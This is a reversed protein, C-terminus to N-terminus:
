SRRAGTMPMRIRSTPFHKVVSARFVRLLERFYARAATGGAGKETYKQTNEIDGHHPMKHGTWRSYTFASAASCLLEALLLLMQVSLLRSARHHLQQFLPSSGAARLAEMEPFLRLALYFSLAVAGIVLAARATRLGTAARPLAASELLLALLLVGGCAFGILNLRRFCEGVVRGAEPRSLVGFAVPAVLAGIAVLGGLWLCLALGELVRALISWSPRIM